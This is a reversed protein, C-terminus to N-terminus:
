VDTPRRRSSPDSASDPDEAGRLLPSLLRALLGVGLASVAGVLGFFLPWGDYTFYAPRGIVGAAIAVLCCAGALLALGQRGSGPARLPGFLTQSWAPEEGDEHPDPTQSM